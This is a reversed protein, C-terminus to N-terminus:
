AVISLSHNAQIYAGNGQPIAEVIQADNYSKNSQAFAFSEDRNHGALNENGSQHQEYSIIFEGVDFGANAFGQKLNDASEKFAGFAESSAVVIKGSVVKDSLELQIKINGLSEPNLNLKITGQNNDKLIFTAAKLISDSNNQLEQTLMAQFNKAGENPINVDTVDSNSHVNKLVDLSLEVDMQNGHKAQLSNKEFLKEGKVNQVSSKTREDIVTFINKTFSTEGKVNKSFGELLEDETEDTKGTEFKVFDHGRFTEDLVGAESVAFGQLLAISGRDIENQDDVNEIPVQFFSTVIKASELKENENKVGKEDVKTETKKDETKEYRVKQEEDDRPVDSSSVNKERNMEEKVMSSFSQESEKVQLFSEDTKQFSLDNSPANMSLFSVSEKLSQLDLGPVLQM